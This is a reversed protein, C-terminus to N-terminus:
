VVSKRDSSATPKAFPAVRIRIDVDLNKVLPRSEMRLEYVVIGVVGLARKDIERFVGLAIDICSTCTGSVDGRGTFWNIKVFYRISRRCVSCGVRCACVTDLVQRELRRDDM